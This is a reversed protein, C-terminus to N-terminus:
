ASLASLARALDGMRVPKSLYDDMGAQLCAERDTRLARATLAVVRPQSTAPLESRLRRTADLGDMGPMMVDMLVLDYPSARLRDLAESGNSALDAEYGLLRLMQLTLAQNDPEDEAILIRLRSPDAGAAPRPPAPPAESRKRVLPVMPQPGGPRSMARLLLTHLATPAVPKVAIADVTEAADGLETRSSLIAIPLADSVERIAKALTVGDMEPMEMDLVAVDYPRGEQIWRLGELPDSTADVSLGWQRCHAVTLARSEELDDVVLAKRGALSAASATATVVRREAREALAVPLQVRFVSGEGEASEVTLTGNMTQVFQRSLALGLGTGGYERTTSADAQVFPEFVQGQRADPIGIGTDRVEFTLALTGDKSGPRSMLAVEVSGERTFKVANSVLNSLVQHLRKEDGLVTPVQSASPPLYALEIGKEGALPAFQELVGVVLSEADFPSSELVLREAEIKSFDLVDDILRLLRDSARQITAIYQHQVGDLETTRLLDSYGVVANMPTRIEHSMAALFSSKARNATEAQDRAIALAEVTRKLRQESERLREERLDRAILGGAWQAALRILTQDTDSFPRRSPRAAALSISARIEGDVWIPAGIYAEHGVVEYCRHDAYESAEMHEIAVVDAEHITIDCYTDGLPMEDGPSMTEGERTVAALCHYVDGDVRALLGYDLDLADMMAALVGRAQEQFTGQTSTASLLSRLNQAQVGMSARALNRDTVDLSIGVGGQVGGDADLVPTLVSEFTRGGLHVVWESREGRLAKEVSEVVVPLDAYVEAMDKGVNWGQGVGLAELPAGVHLTMRRDADFAWITAEADRAANFLASQQAQANAISRRALDSHELAEVQATQDETMMVIGGIEGSDTYWPRVEYRLYQVSGDERHFPELDSKVTGGALAHQHHGTKWADPIDPFVDYHSRGRLDGQEQLGYDEVWRNSYALYRMETDMLAMAAPSHEVFTLLEPSLSMSPPPTGAASAPISSVCLAYRVTADLREVIPVRSRRRRQAAAHGKAAAEGGSAADAARLM